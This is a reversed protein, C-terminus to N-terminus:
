GKLSVAVIGSVIMLTGLIKWFSLSEGLFLASLGLVLIFGTATLPYATSLPLKTLALMWFLSAAFASGLGSIIWPNLLLKLLLEAKSSSGAVIAGSMDIQWKLILQGYVTLMVTLSIYLYGM